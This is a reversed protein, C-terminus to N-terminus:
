DLAVLLAVPFTRFLDAARLSNGEENTFRNRYRRNKTFSLATEGWLETAPYSPHGGALTRLFRPVACIVTGTKGIRAFGVLHDKRPGEVAVPQYAGEFIERYENRAQLATMLTFLKVAGSKWDNLLSVPAKRRLDRLLNRRSTYDVLRRNDPDVLSLDWLETGQYIDPVGPSCIKLLVQALSNLTGFYAIDESFANLDTVFRASDLVQGVFETTGKEYAENPDTWSTETKAERTAKLMYEQIRKRFQARDEDTTWTGVLVQYLLYEDNATPANDRKLSANLDRWRHVAKRWEDPMETLVNLRARLDEGRKTDHTSTALLSSPWKESKDRNYSHFEEISTGFRGPEGGVENLSVFRNFRYFATDELGKATAPGSLQQFRIAFERAETRLANDFGPICALSLIRALFELPQKDKLSTRERARALAQEIYKLETDSLPKDQDTVYNRYVPFAAIFDIIATRLDAEVFDVAYRTQSVVKKLRAALSTVESIFMRELVERKSRFAVNEFGESIGSFGSYIENFASQNERQVFIGNLHNLYDYGTTGHVPWHEPLREEGSLIKEVVVYAKGRTHTNLRELYTSPDRLGDPHDIRLGTIVGSHMLNFIFQHSAEFVKEDEVRLSVRATVDFFRRYNIEHAGVRWYALRYHQMEILAHLQNFSIPSGLTGNLRAITLDTANLLDFREISHSSLPFRHNFYALSLDDKEGTIQLEGRELVTSYHDGLIPLLVKGKLGPSASNWNIDFYNAFESKPGNKLVDRWWCNAPHAGMHNPVIDLLLGMGSDRLAASLQELHKRSGLSPDIQEFNCVDYGHSSEPTALFLPSSYLDSIGLEKLYDVLATADAITFDRNFQLRYTALPIRM